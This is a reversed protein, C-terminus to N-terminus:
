EAMEGEPLANPQNAPPDTQTNLEGMLQERRKAVQKDFESLVNLAQSPTTALGIILYQAICLGYCTWGVWGDFIAAMIAFVPSSQNLHQCVLGKLYPYVQPQINAWIGKSKDWKLDPPGPHIISFLQQDPMADVVSIALLIRGAAIYWNLEEDFQFHFFNGILLEVNKTAFLLLASARFWEEVDQEFEKDWQETRVFRSRVLRLFPIAVIWVVMRTLPRLVPSLLKRLFWQHPLAM